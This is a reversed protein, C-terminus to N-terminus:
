QINRTTRKSYFKNAYAQSPPSHTESGMCERVADKTICLLMRPWLHVKLQDSPMPSFSVVNPDYFIGISALRSMEFRCYIFVFVLKIIESQEFVYQVQLCDILDVACHSSTSLRPGHVTQGNRTCSWIMDEAERKWTGPMSILIGAHRLDEGHPKKCIRQM